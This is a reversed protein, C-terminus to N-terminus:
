GIVAAAGDGVELCLCPLLCAAWSAFAGFSEGEPTTPPTPTPIPITMWLFAPVCSRLFVPVCSGLGCGEPSV